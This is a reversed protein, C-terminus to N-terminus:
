RGSEPKKHLREAVAVGALVLALALFANAPLAEQMVSVSLAVGWLPILYNMLSAFAVGALDILRYFIVTPLATAFLAVAVVAIMSRLSPDFGGAVIGAIALPATFVAGLLVAGAAAIMGSCPPRRRALIANIAWGLPGGIVALLHLPSGGTIGGDRQLLEPGALALVGAFGVLFGIVRGGTMREGPVFYHALVLTALPITSFCIVAVGSPVRLQGWTVLSFALANGLLGAIVFYALHARSTPVTLRRARVVALLMMAAIALRVGVVVLPPITEIAVRNMAPGSGWLLVLAGILLWREAGGSM